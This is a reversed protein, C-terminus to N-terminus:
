GRDEIITESLPKGQIVIPEFEEDPENWNKPIEGIIGKALLQEAIEEESMSRKETPEISVYDLIEKQQIPPLKQIENIIEQPTM